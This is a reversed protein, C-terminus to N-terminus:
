SCLSLRCTSISNAARWYLTALILYILVNDAIRLYYPPLQPAGLAVLALFALVIAFARLRAMASRESPRAEIGEGVTM